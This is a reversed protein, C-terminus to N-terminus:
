AYYHRLFGRLTDKAKEASRLTFLNILLIGLFVSFMIWEPVGAKELLLGVCAIIIAAASLVYTAYRSPIGADVLIHHLHDRGATTMSVRRLLRRVMVGASDLLPLALLFLATVPNFLGESSGRILLWALMFGLLTSGTDGLFCSAKTRWPFPFNLLLFILLGGIVSAATLLLPTNGAKAALAAIVAIPILSLTGALGDIGDVMNVANMVAAVAFCTLPIAMWTLQITTNPLLQGLSTLKVGMFLAMILGIALHVLLRFRASLENRDDMLGVVVTVTALVMSYSTM